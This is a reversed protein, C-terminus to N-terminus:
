ILNELWTPEYALILSLLLCCLMFLLFQLAQSKVRTEIYFLGVFLMIVFLWM